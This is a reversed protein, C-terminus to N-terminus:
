PVIYRGLFVRMLRRSGGVENMMDHIILFFSLQQYHKSDDLLPHTETFRLIAAALGRVVGQRDFFDNVISELCQCQILYHETM